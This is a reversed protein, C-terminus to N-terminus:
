RRFANRIMNNMAENKSETGGSANGSTAGTSMKYTQGTFRPNEKLFEEAATKFDKKDTVLQNVKFAVYDLDEPKVGKGALIKENKYQAVEVLADDREKELASVNPQNAKQKEKFDNIATTIDDESMGKNRLYNAIAAREAKSARASAVEELQEYTYAANGGQGGGDTGASGGQGGSSGEGSDAFLQLNMMLKKKM